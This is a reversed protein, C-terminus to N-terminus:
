VMKELAKSKLNMKNLIKRLEEREEETLNNAIEQVNWANRASATGFYIRRTAVFELIYANLISGLPIGIQRCLEYVKLKTRAEIKFNITATKM